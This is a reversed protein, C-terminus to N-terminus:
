GVRICSGVYRHPPLPEDTLLGTALGSLSSPQRLPQPFSSSPFVQHPDAASLSSSFLTKCRGCSSWYSSSTPETFPDPSAAPTGTLQFLDPRFVLRSTPFGAVALLDSSLPALSTLLLSFGLALSFDPPNSAHSCLSRSLWPSRGSAHIPTAPGAEELCPFPIQGSFTAVSTQM